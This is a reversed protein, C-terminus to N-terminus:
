QRNRKGRPKDVEMAVDVYQRAPHEISVEYRVPPPNRRPRRAEAHEPFWLLGVLLLLTLLGRPVTARM